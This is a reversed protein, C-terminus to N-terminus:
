DFDNIIFPTQPTWYGADYLDNKYTTNLDEGTPVRPSSMDLEICADYVEGGYWGFQHFNWAGTQWGPSGIPNIMKYAFQGNVRRVQVNSVGLVQSFLQVIASMDRCDVWSESLMDTLHCTTSDVHSDGGDYNKGFGNYARTTISTVADPDNTEDEAWDCSYRLVVAWPNKAKNEDTNRM